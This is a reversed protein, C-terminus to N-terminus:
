GQSDTRSAELVVNTLLRAKLRKDMKKKSDSGGIVGLVTIDRGYEEIETHPM